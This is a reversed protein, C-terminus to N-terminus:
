LWYRWLRKQNKNYGTGDCVSRIKIKVLVTVSV